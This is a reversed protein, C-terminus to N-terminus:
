ENRVLAGLPERGYKRANQVKMLLERESWPPQCRANWESLVSMAEHDSLEFGRVVRCCIRFTRLDGHQGAVAPEVALLFRQARAARDALDLAGSVPRERQRRARDVSDSSFRRSWLVASPRLYEITVPSPTQRKHNAFGPLRTTQACSTAATDSRLERALRKQMTEVAGSDFGRVRWFVHVRGPSSHLVYSPPPLDPRTTLSALLGPGDADEELFVHRIGCIADRSRSRGPRVANVSVYVNWRNANRQRLWSQFRPSTAESVSVVRQATEGTRYTKLFVAVWDAPEYGTRLFRLPADRDISCWPMRLEEDANGHRHLAGSLRRRHRRGTHSEHRRQRLECVHRPMRATLRVRGTHQNAGAAHERSDDGDVDDVHDAAMHEAVSDHDPVDASEDAARGRVDLDGPRHSANSTAARHPEASDDDNRAVDRCSVVATRDARDPRFRWRRLRLAHLSAACSARNTDHQPRM